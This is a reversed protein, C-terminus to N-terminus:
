TAAKTAAPAVAAAVVGAAILQEVQAPSAVLRDGPVYDEGDHLIKATVTCVVDGQAIELERSAAAREAEAASKMAALATNAETLELDRDALNAELDAVTAEAAEARKQLEELKLATAKAEREAEHAAIMKELDADSTKAPIKLKLEAARKELAERNTM